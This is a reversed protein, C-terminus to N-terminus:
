APLSRREKCAQLKRWMYILAVVAWINIGFQIPAAPSFFFLIGEGGVNYSVAPAAGNAVYVYIGLGFYFKYILPFSSIVPIQLAQAVASWKYGRTEGYWLWIGSVFNTALVAIVPILLLVVWYPLVQISMNKFLSIVATSSGIIQCCAVFRNIWITMALGGLKLEITHQYSQCGVNTRWNHGDPIPQPNLQDNCCRFEIVM